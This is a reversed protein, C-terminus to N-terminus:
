ICEYASNDVGRNGQGKGEESGGAAAAALDSGEDCRLLARDLGDVQTHNNYYTSADLGQITKGLKLLHFRVNCRM